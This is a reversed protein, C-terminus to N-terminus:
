AEDEEDVDFKVEEEEEELLVLLLAIIGEEDL